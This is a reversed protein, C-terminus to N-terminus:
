SHMPILRTHAAASTCCCCGATTHSDQVTLAVTSLQANNLLSSATFLHHTLFHKVRITSCHIELTFLYIYHLKYKDKISRLTCWVIHCIIAVYLILALYLSTNYWPTLIHTISDVLVQCNRRRCVPGKNWWSNNGHRWLIESYWEPNLPRGTELRNSSYLSEIVVSNNNPNKLFVSM